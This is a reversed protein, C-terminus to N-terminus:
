VKGGIEIINIIHVQGVGIAAETAVAIRVQQFADVSRRVDTASLYSGWLQTGDKHVFTYVINYMM